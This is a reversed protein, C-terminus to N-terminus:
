RIGGRDYQEFMRHLAAADAKGSHIYIRYRLTLPKGPEITCGSTTSALAPNLIGYPRLTWGTPFHPNSRNDFIAIGDWSDSEGFRASLDAWALRERDIDKSVVGKSTTIATDKRPAFRLNLGGYGRDSVALTVATDIASLSLEIDIIRGATDAPYITLTVQEDLLRRKTSDEEWRNWVKLVARDALAQSEHKEYHQRVGKLTWLDKTIGDFIVKPWM